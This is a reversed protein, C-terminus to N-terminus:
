KGLRDSVHLELGKQLAKRFGAHSASIEHAGTPLNPFAYVGEEGTVTQQPSGTDTHIATVEAGVVRAGTADLVRGSISGGVEQANVRAGALYLLFVVAAAKAVSLRRRAQSGTWM